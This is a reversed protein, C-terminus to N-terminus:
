GSYILVVMTLQEPVRVAGLLEARARALGGALEQETLRSLLMDARLAFRKLDGARCWSPQTVQLVPETAIM